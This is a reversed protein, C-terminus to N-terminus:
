EESFQKRLEDKARALVSKRDAPLHRGARNLYFNLM